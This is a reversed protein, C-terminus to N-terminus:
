QVYMVAACTTPRLGNRQLYRLMKVSCRRQLKTNGLQSISVERQTRNVLAQYYRNDEM